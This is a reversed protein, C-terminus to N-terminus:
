ASSSSESLEARMLELILELDSTYLFREAEGSGAPALAVYPKLTTWAEIVQVPEEDSDQFYSDLDQHQQRLDFNLWEAFVQEHGSNLVRHTEDEGYIQSLGYHRYRGSNADRLSALYALRGFTTSIQSLTKSWVDDIAEDFRDSM